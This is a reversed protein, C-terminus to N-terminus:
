KTVKNNSLLIGMKDANIYGLTICIDRVGLGLTSLSNRNPNSVPPVRTQSEISEDDLRWKHINIAVDSKDM